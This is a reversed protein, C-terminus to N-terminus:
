GGLFALLTKQPFPPKEGLGFPFEKEERAHLRHVFIDGERQGDKSFGSLVSCLQELEKKLFILSLVIQAM